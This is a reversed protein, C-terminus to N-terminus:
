QDSNEIRRMVVELQVDQALEDLEPNQAEQIGMQAAM